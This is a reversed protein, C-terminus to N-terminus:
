VDCLLCGCGRNVYVVINSCGGVGDDDDDDDVAFVLLM